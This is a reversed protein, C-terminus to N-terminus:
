PQIEPSNTPSHRKERLAENNPPQVLPPLGCRSSPPINPPTFIPLTTRLINRQWTTQPRDDIDIIVSLPAHHFSVIASWSIAIERSLLIIDHYPLHFGVRADIKPHCLPLALYCRPRTQTATAVIERGKEGKGEGKGAYATKCVCMGYSLVSM